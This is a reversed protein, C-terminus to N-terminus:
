NGYTETHYSNNGTISASSVMFDSCVMQLNPSRYESLPYARVVQPDNSATNNSKGVDTEGTPTAVSAHHGWLEEADKPDVGVHINRKTGASNPAVHPPESHGRIGKNNEVSKAPNDLDFRNREGIGPLPKTQVENNRQPVRKSAGGHHGSSYPARREKSASDPRRGVEAASDQHMQESQAFEADETGMATSYLIEGKTQKRSTPITHIPSDLQDGNGTAPEFNMQKKVMPKIEAASSDLPVDNGPLHDIHMQRNITPKREPSLNGTASDIFKEKAVPSTEQGITSHQVSAVAKIEMTEPSLYTQEGKAPDLHNLTIYENHRERATSDPHNTDIAVEQHNNQDNVATTVCHEDSKTPDMQKEKDKESDLDKEQTALPFDEHQTRQQQGTDKSSLYPKMLNEIYKHDMRPDSVSTLYRQMSRSGAGESSSDLPKSFPEEERKSPDLDKGDGARSDHDKAEGAASCVYSEEKSTSEVQKKDGFDGVATQCSILQKNGLVEVGLGLHKEVTLQKKVNVESGPTREEIIKKEMDAQSGHTQEEKRVDAKSGFPTNGTLEKGVDVGSGLSTEDSLQTEVSVRSSFGKGEFPTCVLHKGKGKGTYRRKRDPQKQENVAPNSHREEVPNPDCKPNELCKQDRPQDATRKITEIMHLTIGLLDTSVDPAKEERIGKTQNCISEPRNPTQDSSVAPTAHDRSEVNNASETHNATSETHNATSETPM